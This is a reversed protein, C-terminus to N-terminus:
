LKRFVGALWNHSRQVRDIKVVELGVEQMCEQLEEELFYHYYKEIVRGAHTDKEMREEDGERVIAYLIGGPVLGRALKELVEKLEDRTLHHLIDRAWIGKFVNHQVEYDRIDMHLINTNPNEYRAIAVMDTDKEISTVAYKEALFSLDYGAGSGIELVRAPPSVYSVFEELQIKTTSNAVRHRHKSVKAQMEKVYEQTYRPALVFATEDGGYTVRTRLKVELEFSEILELVQEPTEAYHLVGLENDDIIMAEQMDQILKPWFSGYLIVPKHRGYYLKALAWVMTFESLTGTGGQCVVYVQGKEILGLTRQMYSSYTDAEDTVNSMNKGEFISALKPEWYIAVTNGDVSEAGDTAAKMVGPGGGNVISFGKTALIKATQFVEKYLQSDEPISSDGFFTIDNITRENEFVAQKPQEQYDHPKTPLKPVFKPM